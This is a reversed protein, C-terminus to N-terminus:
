DEKLEIFKLGRLHNAEVLAKFEDSVYINSPHKRKPVKFIPKGRCLNDKVRVDRYWYSSRSANPQIYAYSLDLCDLTLIVNLAVLNVDSCALPLAEVSNGVLPHLIEWAQRAAAIGRSGRYAYFDSELIHSPSEMVRHVPLNAWQSWTDGISQGLFQPVERAVFDNQYGLSAYTVTDAEVMFIAMM